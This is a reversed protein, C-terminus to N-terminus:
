RAVRAARARWADPSWAGAGLIAPTPFRRWPRTKQRERAQDSSTDFVLATVFLLRMAM